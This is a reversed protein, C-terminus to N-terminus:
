SLREVYLELAVPDEEKLRRRLALVTDADKARRATEAEILLRYLGACPAEAAVVAGDNGDLLPLMGLLWGDVAARTRGRTVILERLAQDEVSDLLLQEPALLLARAYEARAAAQRDLRWLAAALLGRLPANHPAHDVAARLRQVAEHSRGLDLLIRGASLDPPILEVEDRDLLELIHELLATSLLSPLLDQHAHSSGLRKVPDHSSRLREVPDHSSRLREVPANRAEKVANWLAPAQEHDPLDALATMLEHWHRAARLGDQADRAEPRRSLTQEFIAAARELELRGLAEFGEGARMRDASFLSLQVPLHETSPEM